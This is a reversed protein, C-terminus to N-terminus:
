QGASVLLVVSEPPLALGTAAIKSWDVAKPGTFGDDAIQYLSVQKPAFGSTAIRVNRASGTLNAAALTHTAGDKTAFAFLAGGDVVSAAVSEGRAYTNLSAFLKAADTLRLDSGVISMDHGPAVGSWLATADTGANIASGQMIMNYVAGSHNQEAPVGNWGIAFEDLFIPIHRNPSLADLNTRLAALSQGDSLARAYSEAHANNGDGGYTHCSVFDLRGPLAKVVDTIFGTNVWSTAPGGVLITPDVSKMAGIARSLFNTMTGVNFGMKDEQENPVEWYKVGLHNDVNVIKVLDAVFAAYRAADDDGDGGPGAPINILLAYGADITPKLAARIKGANWSGDGNVWADPAGATIMGWGHIRVLGTGGTVAHLASMFAPNTTHEPITCAPCDVGYARPDIARVVRSWDVTVDATGPACDLGSAFYGGDCVCSAAGSAMTCAGHGSCTQGACTVGGSGGGDDGGGGDGGGSVATVEIADVKPNQVAGPLFQIELTGAAGLTVRFAKDVAANPGGAEAFIDFGSLVTSGNIAVDFLRQGPGNVYIEAFKLKVAYTGAPADMSYRFAAAGNADAGYRESNYLPVADTGNIAVTAPTSYAVGGEFGTDAAWVNGSPDTYPVSSGAAIRVAGRIPSLAVGGGRPAHGGLQLNASSEREVNDSVCSALAVILALGWTAKCSFRLGIHM